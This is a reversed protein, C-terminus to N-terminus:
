EYSALLARLEAEQIARDAIRSEAFAAGYPDGELASGIADFTAAQILDWEPLENAIQLATITDVKAANLAPRKSEDLIVIKTSDPDLQDAAVETIAVGFDVVVAIADKSKQDAVGNKIRDAIGATFLYNIKENGPISYLCWLCVEIGCKDLINIYTIKDDDPKEKKFAALLEDMVLPDPGYKSIENITTAM